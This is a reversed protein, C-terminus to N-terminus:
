IGEQTITMSLNSKRSLSEAGQTIVIAIAFASQVGIFIWFLRLDGTMVNSFAITADTAGHLIAAILVSGKTHNFVWTTIITMALTALLFGMFPITSQFSQPIFVLPLHWFGWLIGLILSSNLASYKAQLRPLAFGRWATEETFLFFFVQFLLSPLLNQLSLLIGVQHIGGLALHIGISILGLIGTLTLAIIYWAPHVRWRILRSFLDKIASLGGTLAATIYTALNLGIWFALSQPIHFSLVGHTEAFTTGWILWPFVFALIFFMPLEYRKM